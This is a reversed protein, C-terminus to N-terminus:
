GSAPPKARKALRMAGHAEALAREASTTTRDIIAAGISASLHLVQAGTDVACARIVRALGDAVVSIGEADIHPLLVAFEDARLRAV